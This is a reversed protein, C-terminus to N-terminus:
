EVELAPYRGARIEKLWHLMGQTRQKNPPYIVPDRRCQGCVAAPYAWESELLAEIGIFSDENGCFCCRCKYEIQEPKNAWWEALQRETPFHEFDVSLNDDLEDWCADYCDQAIEGIQYGGRM